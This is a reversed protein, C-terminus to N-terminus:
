SKAEISQVIVVALRSSSCKPKPIYKTRRRNSPIRQIDPVLTAASYDYSTGYSTCTVYEFKISIGTKSEDLNYYLSRLYTLYPKNLWLCDSITYGSSYM